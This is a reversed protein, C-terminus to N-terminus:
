AGVIEVKNIGPIFYLRVILMDGLIDKYLPQTMDVVPTVQENVKVSVYPSVSVDVKAVLHGLEKTVLENDLPYHLEIAEGAVALGPQFVSLAFVIVFALKATAIRM